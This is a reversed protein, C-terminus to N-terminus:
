VRVPQQPSLGEVGQLARIQDQVGAIDARALDEIAQALDSRGQRHTAVDVGRDPGRRQRDGVHDLRAAQLKVHQVVPGREVEVGHGGAEGRHDESVRVARPCLPAVAHEVQIGAAGARAPERQGDRQGPEGDLTALEGM